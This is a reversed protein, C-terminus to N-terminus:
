RSTSDVNRRAEKAVRLAQQQLNLQKLRKLLANKLQLQQLKAALHALLVVHNSRVRQLKLLLSLPLKVNQV